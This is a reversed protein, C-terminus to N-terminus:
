QYSVSFCLHARFYLLSGCRRRHARPPVGLGPASACWRTCSHQAAYSAIGGSKEAVGMMPAEVSAALSKYRRTDGANGGHRPLCACVWAAPTVARDARRPPPAPADTKQANSLVRAGDEGFSSYARYTVSLLLEERRTIVRVASLAGM